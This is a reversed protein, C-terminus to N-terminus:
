SSMGQQVSNKFVFTTLTVLRYFAAALLSGLAPGVWYVWHDGWTDVGEASLIVTPGFSRAPNMSAGSITGRCYLIPTLIKFSKSAILTVKPGM